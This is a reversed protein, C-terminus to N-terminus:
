RGGGPIEWLRKVTGWDELELEISVARPLPPDRNQVPPWVQTWNGDPDLFRIRLAKVGDLMAVSYPESAQIRDLVPWGERSLTEGDLIWGIRQLTSRKAGAPNVWGARTLELGEGELGRLAPLPDGLSDSLQGQYSIIQPVDALSLSAMIMMIIIAALLVHHKAM